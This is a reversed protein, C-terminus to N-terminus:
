NKPPWGQPDIKNAQRVLADAKLDLAKAKATNRKPADRMHEAEQRLMTAHQRLSEGKRAKADAGLALGSSLVWSAVALVVVTKIGKM